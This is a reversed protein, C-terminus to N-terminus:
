QTLTDAAAAAAESHEPCLFDVSEIVLKTSPWRGSPDDAAALLNMPRALAKVAGDFGDSDAEETATNCWGEAFAAIRDPDDDYVKFYGGSELHDAVTETGPRLALGAILALGLFTAAVAVATAISTRQKM